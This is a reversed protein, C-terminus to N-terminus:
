IPDLILDWDRIKYLHIFGLEVYPDDSKRKLSMLSWNILPNNDDPNLPIAKSDWAAEPPHDDSAQLEPDTGIKYPWRFWSNVLRALRFM